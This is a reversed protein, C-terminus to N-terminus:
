TTNVSAVKANPHKSTIHQMLGLSAAVSVTLHGARIKRLALAVPDREIM